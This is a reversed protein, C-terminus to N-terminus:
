KLPYGIKRFVFISRNQYGFSSFTNSLAFESTCLTVFAAIKNRFPDSFAFDDNPFGCTKYIDNSRQLVLLYKM